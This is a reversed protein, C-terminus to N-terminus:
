AMGNPARCHKIAIHDTIQQIQRIIQLYLGFRKKLVEVNDTM